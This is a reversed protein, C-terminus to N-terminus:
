FVNNIFRRIKQDTFNLFISKDGEQADSNNIKM